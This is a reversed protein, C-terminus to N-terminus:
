LVLEAYLRELVQDMDTCLGPHTQSTQVVTSRRATLWRFRSPTDLLGIPGADKGGNAIRQLSILNDRIAAIDADPYLALIKRENVEFLVKLFRKRGCYAIVGANIFEEREVRPVIRIVAYEFLHNDPM